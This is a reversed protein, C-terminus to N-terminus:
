QQKVNANKKRVWQIVTLLITKQRMKLGTVIQLQTRQLHIM